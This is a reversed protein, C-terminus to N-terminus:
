GGAGAATTTLSCVLFRVFIEIMLIDILYFLVDTNVVDTAEEFFWCRKSLGGTYNAEGM